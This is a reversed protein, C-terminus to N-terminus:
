KEAVSFFSARYSELEDQLVQRQEELDPDVLGEDSEEM